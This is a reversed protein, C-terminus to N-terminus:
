AEPQAAKPNARKALRSPRISNQQNQESETTVDSPSRRAPETDQTATERGNLGNLKPEAM